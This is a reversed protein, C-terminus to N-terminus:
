EEDLYKGTTKMEKKRDLEVRSRFKPTRLAKAVPNRKNIKPKRIRKKSKKKVDVNWLNRWNPINYGL